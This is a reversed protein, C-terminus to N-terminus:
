RFLIAIADAAQSAKLLYDHIEYAICCLFHQPSALRGVPQYRELHGQQDHPNTLYGVISHRDDNENSIGVLNHIEASGFTRNTLDPHLAVFDRGDAANIWEGM